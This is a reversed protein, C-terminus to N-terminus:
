ASSRPVTERVPGPSLTCTQNVPRLRPVPAPTLVTM